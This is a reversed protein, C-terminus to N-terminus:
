GMRVEREVTRFPGLSVHSAEVHFVTKGGKWLPFTSRL